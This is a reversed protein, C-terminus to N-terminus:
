KGLGGGKEVRQDRTRVVSDSEVFLGTADGEIGGGRRVVFEVEGIREEGREMLRRELWLPPQYLRPPDHEHQSPQQPDEETRQHKKGKREKGKEM